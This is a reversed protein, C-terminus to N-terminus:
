ESAIAFNKSGPILMYNRVLMSGGKFSNHTPIYDRTLYLHNENSVFICRQKEQEGLYEINTIAVKNSFKRNKRIRNRKRSLHFIDPNGKIYVM